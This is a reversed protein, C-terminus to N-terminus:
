NQDVLSPNTNKIAKFISGEQKVLLVAAGKEFTTEGMDPEVMVYHTLGHKDKVKAEASSGKKATGLTIVAVRGILTKESVADTEDKPIIKELVGGLGRVVPLALFLSIISAILGPLMIGTTNHMFSQISLGILGFSTLFIVLLILVPVQGLRLWGLFRSLPTVSSVESADLSSASELNVDINLGPLLSDLFASIGAGLLTAVGELFAIGLMVALAVTFPMNQSTTLFELM